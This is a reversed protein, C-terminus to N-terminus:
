RVEICECFCQSHTSRLGHVVQYSLVGALFSLADVSLAFARFGGYSGGAPLAIGISHGALPWVLIVLIFRSAVGIRSLVTSRSRHFAPRLLRGCTGMTPAARWGSESARGLRSSRSGGRCSGSTCVAVRSPFSRCRSMCCSCGFCSSAHEVQDVEGGRDIAGGPVVQSAGVIRVCSEAFVEGAFARRDGAPCGPVAVLHVEHSDPLSVPAVLPPDFSLVVVRSMAWDALLLWSVGCWRFWGIGLWSRYM